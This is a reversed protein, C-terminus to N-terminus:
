ADSEDFHELNPLGSKADHDLMDGWHGLQLFQLFAKAEHLLKKEGLGIAVEGLLLHLLPHEFTVHGVAELAVDRALENKGARAARLAYAFYLNARGLESAKSIAWLALVSDVPPSGSFTSFVSCRPCRDITFTDIGNANLDQIITALQAPSSSLYGVVPGRRLETRAYDAARLPTSFVPVCPGRNGPLTITLLGQEGLPVLETFLPEDDPPRRPPQLLEDQLAECRSTFSTSGEEKALDSPIGRSPIARLASYSPLGSAQNKDKLWSFM